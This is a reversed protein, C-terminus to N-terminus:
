KMLIKALKRYDKAIDTNKTKRYAVMPLGDYIGKNAASSRKIVAIVNYEEQMYDLVERNDKIRKDYFTAVVGAVQLEPNLSVKIENITEYIDALGRFALYECLCPVIVKDAAVLCNIALSSLQPPCDILIYDYNEKVTGLIEKLSTSSLENELVAVGRDGRILSVNELQKLPVVSNELTEDGKLVDYITHAVDDLEINAAISLSCQPDMDVILVRKGEMGFSAALNFTTTTKGVGGKQNAVAIVTSM